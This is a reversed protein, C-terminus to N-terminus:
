FKLNVKGDSKVAMENVPRWYYSQANSYDMIYSEGTEHDIKIPKKSFYKVGNGKEYSFESEVISYKATSCGGLTAVILCALTLSWKM